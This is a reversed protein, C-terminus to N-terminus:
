FKDPYLERLRSNNRDRQSIIPDSSPWPIALDPDDWAVASTDSGDYVKSVLYIYDIETYAYISNAFGEPIFLALGNEESLEFTEYRGFTPSDPRLDVIASFARGRAIWVTKDWREAHLGRLVGAISRSHNVQQVQFSKGTAQILEDLRVVEHFFGREDYRLPREIKLLGPLTTNSIKNVTAQQM